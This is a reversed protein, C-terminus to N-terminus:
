RPRSPTAPFHEALWRSVEKGKPQNGLRQYQELAETALRQARTPEQGAARLARALTFRTEASDEPRRIVLAQELSAIAEVPRKQALHLEGLGLLAEAILSHGPTLSKRGLTLGQQLQREAENFDGTFVLTRGLSILTNVVDPHEPGLTKQAIALSREYSARAKEFSGLEAQSVGINNHMAAVFAHDPGLAKEMLGLAQQFRNRAEDFRGAKYLVGGLINFAEARALDDGAREVAAELVMSETDLLDPRRSQRVEANWVLVNWVRAVLVDDKGRAAQVLAKKLLADAREYNDAEGHVRGAHYLARAQLPAYDLAEVEPLLTASLELGEQFKGAMWLAELLDVQEQLAEIQARAQPESPLPVPTTLAEADMCASLPPLSQVAQVAQSVLQADPGRALLKVLAGLQGRRRELCSVQLLALDRPRGDEEQSIECVETRLRLWERAYGDVTTQVREATGAAYSLGTGLLAQRVEAKVPEDWVSALRQEMGQCRDTDQQMWGAIALGTLAAAGAAVGATRLRARRKLEPDDELAAILERMSSPRQEPAPQLGRLVVRMVWEPVSSHEPPPNVRGLRHAEWRANLDDGGPYAPQRYLDEYLAVCFSFLDSRADVPQGSLVEPAMYKPTGMMVGPDTELADPVAPESPGEGPSPLTGVRAMGFDTVRARGDKGVLVNEPKFDRHVLGAEHAAALGRGAELYVTLLERWPRQQAEGWQRLTQGEVLEMSIFVTGDELTGADYVAVVHPHSLRAMAQAERLLRIQQLAGEKDERRHLLKLAVRRDLRTDYAATVTGMGGQGLVDLVLYRGALSHPMLGGTLVRGGSPSNLELTLSGSPSSGKKPPAGERRWEDSM